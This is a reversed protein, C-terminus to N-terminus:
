PRSFYDFKKPRVAGAPAARYRDAGAKNFRETFAGLAGSAYRRSAFRTLFDQRLVGEDAIIPTRAPCKGASFRFKSNVWSGDVWPWDGWGRVQMQTPKQTLTLQSRAM